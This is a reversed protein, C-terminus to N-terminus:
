WNKLWKGYGTNGNPLREIYKLDFEYMFEFQENNIITLAKDPTWDGAELAGQLYTIIDEFVYINNQQYGEKSWATISEYEPISNGQLTYWAINLCGYNHPSLGAIPDRVYTKSVFESEPHYPDVIQVPLYRNYYGSWAYDIYKGVEIGGTAITNGFYATPEGYDTITLLKDQGLSERLARILKPYSTTNTEPMGYKGYGSNRDWLNVGDFGYTFIIRSVQEVFDQIQEESLNCFGIGKNAGEISICVKRGSEQIPKIYEDYHQTLYRMNVGLNLIARESNADYDITVTRLNVINGIAKYWETEFSTTNIRSMYYDTVLRPDYIDTNLYFVLFCDPGSYVGAASNFKSRVTVEIYFIDELLNNSETVVIPLLYVGEELVNGLPNTAYITLPLGLSNTEYPKLMITNGQDFSYFAKPLLNYHKENRSIYKEVMAEDIYFQVTQIADTPRTCHAYFLEIDYKDGETFSVKIVNDITKNNSIIIANAELQEEDPQFGGHSIADELKDCSALLNGTLGAILALTVIKKM